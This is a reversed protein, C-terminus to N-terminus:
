DAASSEANAGNALNVAKVRQRTGHETVLIILVLPLCGEYFGSFSSGIATSGSTTLDENYTYLEKKRQQFGSPM